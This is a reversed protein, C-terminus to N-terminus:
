VRRYTVVRAAVEWDFRKACCVTAPAAVEVTVVSNPFHTVLLLALTEGKSQTHRGSSAVSTGLKIKPDRSLARHSRISM